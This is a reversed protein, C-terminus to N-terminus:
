EAEETFAQWQEGTPIGLGREPHRRAYAALPDDGHRSFFDERWLLSDEAERRATEIAKECVPRVALDFAADDFMGRAAYFLAYPNVRIATLTEAMVRVCLVDMLDDTDEGRAIAERVYPDVRKATQWALAAAERLNALVMRADDQLRKEIDTM